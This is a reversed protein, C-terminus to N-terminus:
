RSGELSRSRGNPRFNLTGLLPRLGKPDTFDHTDPREDPLPEASAQPAKRFGLDPGHRRLGSEAM